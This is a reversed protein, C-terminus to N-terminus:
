SRSWSRSDPISVPAGGQQASRHACIGPLTMDLGAHVDLPVPEGHDLATLWSDVMFWEADGHGGLRAAEPAARDLPPVVDPAPGRTEPRSALYGRDPADAARGSDLMGATGYLTYNHRGPESAVSFGCLVKCVAGSAMKFLGVEMDLTGFERELHSGTDFGVASVCRDQMWHLLPGLSHTCYQIPPLSARWTPSGDAQRMLGRCDHVYEAEAYFIDGLRGEDIFRRWAVTRPFWNVNEALMYTATSRDVAAVLERAEDITMVAPVESLVHRGADLAAIAQAAHLPAPTAIFIADLECALLAECSDVAVPVGFDAAVQERTAAVPDAVAVVTALPHHAMVALPGRGRRLGAVGIRFSM